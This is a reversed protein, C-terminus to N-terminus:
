YNRSTNVWAPKASGRVLDEANEYETELPSSIMRPDRPTEELYDELYQGERSFGQSKGRAPSWQSNRRRVLVVTVVAVVIVIVVVGVAAGVIIGVMSPKLLSAEKCLQRRSLDDGEYITQVNDKNEINLVLSM